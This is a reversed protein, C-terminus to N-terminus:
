RVEDEPFPPGPPERRAIRRLIDLYRPVWRQASLAHAQRRAGARLAAMKEAPMRALEEIARGLDAADGPEILLGCTDDVIEPISRWRSAIVPIGAAYAELIVGPYGEGHHQTPFLLVDYRGLTAAAEAPTIEGCYNAPTGIFDAPTVGDMCPGYVHLTLDDAILRAAVLLTPIGKAPRVQSLFVFWRAAATRTGGAARAGPPPLNRLWLVQSFGGSSSISSRRGRRTCYPQHGCCQSVTSGDYQVLSHKTTRWMGVEAPTFWGRCVAFHWMLWVVPSLVVSRGFDVHLTVVDHRPVLWLMQAVTRVTRRLRPWWGPRNSANIVHVQVDQAAQVGAVLEEFLVIMGGIPTPVGDDTVTRPGIMLLRLPRSLTPM